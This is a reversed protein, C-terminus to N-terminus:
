QLTGLYSVLDDLDNAALVNPPMRNGPKIRQSDAVWGALHGITNPLTGAAITSRSALHTLDPGTHGFAGAGRITHCLVCPAALFVSQGRAATPDRPAAALGRQRALWADFERPEQAVVVFGMHAHQYGCFEACRGPFTGPREARFVQTTPRGPILDKKGTMTPAWFSHIVDGSSLALRVARGVPVHIENATTVQESPSRGPYRVEWWWQHGTVEIELADAGAPAVIARGTSESVALLVLLILASIAAGVAVGRARRREGEVTRTRGRRLSAIALLGVIIAFVATSVWFLFWYLHAIREAERGAPQLTSPVDRFASASLSFLEIVAAKM